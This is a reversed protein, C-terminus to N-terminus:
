VSYLCMFCETSFECYEEDAFFSYMYRGDLEKKKKRYEGIMGEKHCNSCEFVTRFSNPPIPNVWNHITELAKWNIWDPKLYSLYVVPNKEKKIKELIHQISDEKYWNVMNHYFKFSFVDIVALSINKTRFYIVNTDSTYDVDIDKWWNEMQDNDYTDVTGM